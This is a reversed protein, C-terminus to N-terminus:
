RWFCPANVFIDDISKVFSKHVYKCIKMHRNLKSSPALLLNNYRSLHKRLDRQSNFYKGCKECPHRAALHRLSHQSPKSINGVPKVPTNELLLWTQLLTPTTNLTTPNLAISGTHNAVTMTKTELVIGTKSGRHEKEQNDDSYKNNDFEVTELWSWYSIREQNEEKISVEELARPLYFTGQFNELEVM